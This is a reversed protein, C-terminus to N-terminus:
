AVGVKLSGVGVLDAGVISQSYSDSKHLVCTHVIAVKKFFLLQM